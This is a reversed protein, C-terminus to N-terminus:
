SVFVRYQSFASQAQTIPYSEWKEENEFDDPLQVEAPEATLEVAAEDDLWHPM